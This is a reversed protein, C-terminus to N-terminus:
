SGVVIEIEEVIERQKARTLSPWVKVLRRLREADVANAVGWSASHSEAIRPPKSRGIAALRREAASASNEADTVINSQHAAMCALWRRGVEALLDFSDKYCHVNVRVRKTAIATAM